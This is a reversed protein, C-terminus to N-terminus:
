DTGLDSITVTSSTAFASTDEVADSFKKAGSFLTVETNSEKDLVIDVSKTTSLKGIVYTCYTDTTFESGTEVQLGDNDAVIFNNSFRTDYDSTQM